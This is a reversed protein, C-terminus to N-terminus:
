NVSIILSTIIFVLVSVLINTVLFLYSVVRERLFFANSLIANMVMFSLTLFWIGWVSSSDGFIDVGRFADFHLILPQSFGGASFLIFIASLIFLPVSAFFLFLAKKDGLIHM